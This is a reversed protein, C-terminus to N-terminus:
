ILKILTTLELLQLNLFLVLRVLVLTAMAKEIILASGDVNSFTAQAQTSFVIDRNYSHILLEGYSSSGSFETSEGMQLIPENESNYRGSFLFPIDLTSQQINLKGIPSTTGIGVRGNTNDIRM